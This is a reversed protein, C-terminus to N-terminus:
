GLHYPPKTGNDDVTAIIAHASSRYYKKTVDSVTFGHSRMQNSNLLFNHIRDGFILAQSIALIFAKGIIPHTYVKEVTGIKIDPM